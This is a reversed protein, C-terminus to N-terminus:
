AADTLEVPHTVCHIEVQECHWDAKSDPFNMDADTVM